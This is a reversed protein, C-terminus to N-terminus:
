IRDLLSPVHFCSTVGLSKFSFLIYYSLELVLPTSTNTEIKACLAATQEYEFEREAKKTM